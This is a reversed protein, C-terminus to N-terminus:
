KHVNIDVMIHNKIYRYFFFCIGYHKNNLQYYKLTQVIYSENIYHFSKNPKIKLFPKINLCWCVMPSPMTQCAREKEIESYKGIKGNRECRSM